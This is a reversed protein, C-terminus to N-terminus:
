ITKVNLIAEPPIDHKLMYEHVITYLKRRAEDQAALVAERNNLAWLFDDMAGHSLGLIRGAEDDVLVINPSRLTNPNTELSCDRPVFFLHNAESPTYPITFTVVCPKSPQIRVMAEKYLSNFEQKLEPPLPPNEAIISDLTNKLHIWLEGGPHARAWRAAFDFSDVAAVCSGYSTEQSVRWGVANSLRPLDNKLFWSYLEQLFSSFPAYTSREKLLGDRRISPVFHESTGHYLEVVTKGLSFVNKFCCGGM